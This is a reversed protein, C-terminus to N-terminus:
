QCRGVAVRLVQTLLNDEFLLCTRLYEVEHQIIKLKDKNLNVLKLDEIFGKILIRRISTMIGDTTMEPISFYEMRTEFIDDMEGTATTHIPKANRNEVTFLFFNGISKQFLEGVKIEIPSILSLIDPWFETELNEVHKSIKIYLPRTFSEVFLEALKNSVQMYSTALNKSRSSLESKSDSEGMLEDMFINIAFELTDNTMDLSLRSMVLASIPGKKDWMRSNIFEKGLDTWFNFM